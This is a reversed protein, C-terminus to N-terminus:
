FHMKTVTTSTWYERSEKSFLVSIRELLKRFKSLFTSTLITRLKFTIFTTRGISGTSGMCSRKYRLKIWITSIM